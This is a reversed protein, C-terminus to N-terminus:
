DGEIEALFRDLSSPGSPIPPGLIGLRARVVDLARILPPLDRPDTERDAILDALRRAIAADALHGEGLGARALDARIASALEPPRAM